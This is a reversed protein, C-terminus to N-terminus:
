SLPVQILVASGAPVYASINGSSIQLGYPTGPSFTNNSGVSAGQITTGTTATLSSNSMQLLTASSVSQNVDVTAQLNQTSDKNIIVVNLASSTAVAYATANLSSSITTQRLQGTGALTFLLMGYFEPSVGAVIGNNDVIPTYFNNSGGHMCLGAAGGEAVQFLFDTTWLAAGFANSVGSVGGGYFNNTEGFRFPLQSQSAISQMESLFNTLTPNPALLDDMTSTPDVANGVYYDVTVQKILKSEASVFPIVWDNVKGTAAQPGVLPANPTQQLAAQAFAQWQNLFADTTPFYSLGYGDPGDGFFFGALSSGLSQTAYAIEAAALDPSSNAFNIGYLVSWGTAKLFAALADVDAPAIQGSTQGAGNPTWTMHDVTNGGLSLVSTGLLKFLAIANANQGSFFPQALKSKEYSLGAFGAGISGVVTSLV